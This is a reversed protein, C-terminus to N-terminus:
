HRERVPQEGPSPRLEPRTTHWAPPASGDLLMRKWTAHDLRQGIPRTFEHYGYVAGRCVFTERGDPVAVYITRALGTGVELCERSAYENAVDIVVGMPETAITMNSRNLSLKKFRGGIRRLFVADDVTQPAGALERRALDACRRLIWSLEDFAARDPRAEALVRAQRARERGMFDDISPPPDGRRYPRYEPRPPEPNAAIIRQADAVISDFLGEESLRDALSRCMDDLREYFGPVPEVYGHFRDSMASIGAYIGADKVFPATLEAIEAWGGLATNIQKEEWATSRMFAPASAAPEFLRTLTGLTAEPLDTGSEVAAPAPEGVRWGREAALASARRSGMLDGVLGLGTPPWM